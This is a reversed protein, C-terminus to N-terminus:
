VGQGSVRKTRECAENGHVNLGAGLILSVSGPVVPSVLSM